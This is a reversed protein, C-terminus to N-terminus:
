CYVPMIAIQRIQISNLAQQGIHSRANDHIRHRIGLPVGLRLEFEGQRDIADSRAYQATFRKPAPSQDNMVRHLVNEITALISRIRFIVEGLLLTRISLGVQGTLPPQRDSRGIVWQRGIRRGLLERSSM